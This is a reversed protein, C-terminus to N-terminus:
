ILDVVATWQGAECAGPPVPITQVIESVRPVSDPPASTVFHGAGVVYLQYAHTCDVQVTLAVLGTGDPSAPWTNDTGGSGACALEELDATVGEGDPQLPGFPLVLGPVASRLQVQIMLTRPVAGGAGCSTKTGGSFGTLNTCGAIALAAVLLGGSWTIGSSM